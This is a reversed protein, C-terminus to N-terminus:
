RLSIALQELLDEQETFTVMVYRWKGGVLLDIEAITAEGGKPGNLRYGVAGRRL